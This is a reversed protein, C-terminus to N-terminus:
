KTIKEDLRIVDYGLVTQLGYKKLIRNAKNNADDFIKSLKTGLEVELEKLEKKSLDDINVKKAAM